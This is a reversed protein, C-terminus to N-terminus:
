KGWTVFFLDWESAPDNATYHHTMSWCWMLVVVTLAGSVLGCYGCAAVLIWLTAKFESQLMIRFSKKHCRASANLSCLFKSKRNSKTILLKKKKHILVSLVPINQINLSSGSYDRTSISHFCFYPNITRHPTTACVESTGSSFIQDQPSAQLYSNTHLVYM